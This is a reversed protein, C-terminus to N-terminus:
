VAWVRRFWTGGSFPYDEITKALGARIPNAFIYRACDETQQEERLVWEWYGVQWLPRGVQQAYAHATRQRLLRCCTMLHANEKIGEVLIHVHDPMFCYAIVEFAQEDCTRLLQDILVGVIVSDVFARHKRLACFTLSYRWRGSYSFHLLRKPRSPYM